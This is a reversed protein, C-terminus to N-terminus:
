NISNFYYKIRNRLFIKGRHTKFYKERRIADFKNICAEYYLLVLPRRYSTSSVEGNTHEQYRKKLDNTHGSYFQNDKKSLLVYTYYM